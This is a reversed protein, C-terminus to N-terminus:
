GASRRSISAMVAVLREKRAQIEALKADIGVKISAYSSRDGVPLNKVAKTLAEKHKNNASILGIEILNKSYISFVRESAIVGVVEYKRAIQLISLLSGRSEEPIALL